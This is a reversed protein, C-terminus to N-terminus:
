SPKSPQRKIPAEPDIVIFVASEPYKISVTCRLMRTGRYLCYEIQYAYIFIYTYTYIYIYMFMCTYIYIYIDIHIYIYITGGGWPDM